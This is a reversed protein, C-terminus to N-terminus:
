CMDCSINRLRKSQWLDRRLRSHQLIDSLFNSFFTRFYFFEAVWSSLRLLELNIGNEAGLSSKLVAMYLAIMSLLLSIDSKLVSLQAASLAQAQDIKYCDWEKQFLFRRDIQLLLSM